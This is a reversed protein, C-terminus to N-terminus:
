EEGRLARARETWRCSGDTLENCQGPRCKCPKVAESPHRLARAADKYAASQRDTDAHATLEDLAPQRLHATITALFAEAEKACDYGDVSAIIGVVAEAVEDPLPRAELQAVYAAITALCAILSDVQADTGVIYEGDPTMPALRIGIRRAIELALTGAREYEERKM